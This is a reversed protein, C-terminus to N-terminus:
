LLEPCLIRMLQQNYERNLISNLHVDDLYWELPVNKNITTRDFLLDKNCKVKSADFLVSPDKVNHRTPPHRILYTNVTQYMRGFVWIGILLHLLKM